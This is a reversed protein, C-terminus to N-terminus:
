NFISSRQERHSRYQGFRAGLVLVVVLVVAIGVVVALEIKMVMSLYLTTPTKKYALVLFL